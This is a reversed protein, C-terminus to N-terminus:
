CKNYVYIIPYGGVFVDINKRWCGTEFHRSKSFSALSKYYGVYLFIVGYNADVWFCWDNFILEVYGLDSKDVEGAGFFLPIPQIPLIWMKDYWHTLDTKAFNDTYDIDLPGFSGALFTALILPVIYYFAVFSGAM